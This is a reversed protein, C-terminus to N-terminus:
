KSTTRSANLLMRCLTDSHMFEINNQSHSVLTHFVIGILKLLASLIGAEASAVPLFSNLFKICKVHVYNLMCKAQSDYGM